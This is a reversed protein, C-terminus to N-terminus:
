NGSYRIREELQRQLEAQSTALMSIPIQVTPRDQVQGRFHATGRSFGGTKFPKLRRQLEDDGDTNVAVLLQKRFATPRAFGMGVVRDWPILGIAPRRCQIGDPGITLVPKRDFGLYLLFLATALGVLFVGIDVAIGNGESMSVGSRLAELAALSILMCPLAMGLYRGKSAMIEIPQGVDGDPEPVTRTEDAARDGSSM